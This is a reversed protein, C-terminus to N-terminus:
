KLIDAREQIGRELGGFLEKISPTAAIIEDLDEPSVGCDKATQRAVEDAYKDLDDLISM